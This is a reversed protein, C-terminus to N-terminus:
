GVCGKFVACELKQECEVFGVGVFWGGYLEQRAHKMWVHVGVALEAEVNKLVPPRRRVVDSRDQRRDLTQQM